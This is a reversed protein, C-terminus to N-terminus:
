IFIQLIGCEFIQSMAFLMFFYFKIMLFTTLAPTFWTLKLDKFDFDAKYLVNDTLMMIANEILEAMLIVAVVYYPFVSLKSLTIERSFKIKVLYFVTYLLYCGSISFSVVPTWEAV